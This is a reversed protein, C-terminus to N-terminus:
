KNNNYSSQWLALTSSSFHEFAFPFWNRFQFIIARCCRCRYSCCKCIAFLQIFLISISISPSSSALASPCQAHNFTSPWAFCNCPIWNQKDYDTHWNTKRCKTKNFKWIIRQANNGKKRRKFIYKRENIKETPPCLLANKLKKLSLAYNKKRWEIKWHKVAFRPQSRSQKLEVRSNNNIKSETYECKGHSVALLVLFYM